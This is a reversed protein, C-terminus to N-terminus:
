AAQQQEKAKKAFSLAGELLSYLKKDHARDKTWVYRNAMIQVCRVREERSLPRTAHDFDLYLNLWKSYRPEGIMRWEERLGHLWLMIDNQEKLEALRKQKTKERTMEKAGATTKTIRAM